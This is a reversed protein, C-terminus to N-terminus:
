LVIVLDMTFATWGDFKTNEPWTCSNRKREGRCPYACCTKFISERVNMGHAGAAYNM